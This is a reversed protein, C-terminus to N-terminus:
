RALELLRAAGALLGAQDSAGILVVNKEVAFPSWAFSLVARGPGPYQGDAVELLLDSAQLAATAQSTTSDGLVILHSDTTYAEPLQPPLGFGGQYSQLATWPRAWRARFAETTPEETAQAGIATVKKKEDVYLKVGPEYCVEGERTVDLFGRGTVTVLTGPQRWDGHLERGDDGKATLAGAADLGLEVRRQAKRGDWASAAADPHYLKAYPNWVRPYAVKRLAQSEPRVEAKIGRAALRGALQEAVALQARNAVAIVLEPKAKLFAHIAAGDLLIVPERTVHPKEVAAHYDVGASGSLGALPSTVRVAYRGPPANSGIPFREEWTGEAGTARYVDYLVKGAPDRLTVELPWPMRLGVLGATVQVQMQAAEATLRLGAPEHPAVLYLKMEAPEFHADLPDEPRALRGPKSWDAGEIAYVASREPLGALRYRAQYPANNYIWYSQDDALPPLQQHANLVMYLRGEGGRHCEVLLDHSDTQLRAQCPTQALAAKLPAVAQRVSADMFDNTQFYSAEKRTKFSQPPLTFLAGWRYSLSRLNVRAVTAGPFRVQTSEDVVIRGGSATFDAIARMAEAPLPVLQRVIVLAKYNKLIGGALLREHVIHAPYGARALAQHAVLVSEKYDEGVSYANVDLARSGQIATNAPLGGVKVHIQQGHRRHAEQAALEQQRKALETFSWLVAVDHGALSLERFLPGLRRAPGNVAALDASAMGGTNLWWNSALGAALLGDLAARYADRQQPQPVRAGFLQGNMAHAVKSLPDHAKELMLGSYSGVRSTGWDVFVHTAPVDNVQQNLPDAGDMIAAPAYLDTSFVMKPWVTKLDRAAQANQQKIIACRLAVYHMWDDDPRSAPDDTYIWGHSQYWDKEDWNPFGSARPGAPTKGWSLGPEDLTGVSVVNRAFRRLRQATHFSLLRMAQTMDAAAWSKGTGFPKHTVYGTWYMYILTPRNDAISRDLAALGPSRAARLQTTRPAGAALRGFAFANGVAFNGGAARIQDARVTASLLLTSDLTGSAIVLRAATHGDLRIAYAAPALTGPPVVLTLTEGNGRVEAAVPALSSDEAALQIKATAGPALGAIALKIPEDCYYANREQPLVLQAAQAHGFLLAAVTGMALLKVSKRV